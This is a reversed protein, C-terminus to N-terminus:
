TTFNSYTEFSDLYTLVIQFIGQYQQVTQVSGPKQIRQSKLVQFVDIVGETKCKNITTAAACFMASRGVTDSCHVVISTNGRRRQTKYMEEIVSLITQPKAMKRTSVWNTIQYQMVSQTSGTNTNKVELKREIYGNYIEESSLMIAYEGIVLGSPTSPWYQYCVEQDIEKEHCLMVIATVNRDDIMKWFNRATNFMPSEAIIFAKKEKYGNIFVANIYDPHEGKLPVRYNDRPLFQTSRNKDNNQSAINHTVEDPRQTVQELVTFQDIFGTRGTKTDPKSMRNFVIRANRSDVQTNGCTVSELVADNVFIYQDATQVMKMRQQRMKNIISIIDIGGEKEAQQLGMDIAMFTGTRGVGASCHVLMPGKTPKYENKIRRHFQLISTAYEPVGHDPWSTFHYQTIMLPPQDSGLLTLQMKRITYDTLVQEKTLEIRFPGYSTSGHEPWYQHCKITTDEKLNTVMVIVPPREQWILRWFDVLTKTVPGQTAIYKYDQSYGDIYCANIYDNQCDTNGPIQNLLIRNDDYVVINGFRNLPRNSPTVAITVSHENDGSNLTCYQNKFGENGKAHGNAVFEGFQGVPILNKGSKVASTGNSPMRAEEVAVTLVVQQSVTGADNNAVFRYTGKHKEEVSVLLLSGDGRLEHAYDDTVPEGNHYWNFSLKLTEKVKVKFLVQCGEETTKNSPFEEIVPPTATKFPAPPPPPGCRTELKVEEYQGVHDVSYSVAELAAPKARTNYYVVEHKGKKKKSVVVVIIVIVIIILLLLPVIIGAAIASTSSGGASSETPNSSPASTTVPTGSTHSTSAQMVTSTQILTSAQIVTSTQMVTSVMSTSSVITPTLTVGPPIPQTREGEYIIGNSTFSTSISFLYNLNPDLGGILGETTDGPFVRMGTEVQRKKRSSSSTSEYYVTYHSAGSVFHWEARVATSNLKTISFTQIVPIEITTYERNTWEGPGISTYARVGITYSTNPILGLISYYTNTTNTISYPGTSTSERYRIEYVTIIGNPITPPNWAIIIETLTRVHTQNSIVGPISEPTLQIEQRAPGTMNYNYPVISVTYNTYPILGNLNYMRNDGGTINVTYSTNSTINTYTLYYGTIPGNRGNCPVEDWSVTMSVSEVSSFIVDGVPATPATSLTTVLYNTTLNATEAGYVGILDFDCQSYPPIGTSTHPSSVSTESNSTVSSECVRRCRRSINYSIPVLATPPSWILTIGVSTILTATLDSVVPNSFTLMVSANGSPLSASGYSVVYFTYTSGQSLAALINITTYSTTSVSVPTNSSLQYYVEYGTAGSVTSWSLRVQALGTSLRTATLGTPTDSVSVNLSSTSNVATVGSINGATVRDNSVICQYNGAERLRVTVTVRTVSGPGNVIVRCLETSIGNGNVSCNVTTPPGDSVNFSLSFVPPTALRSTSLLSFQMTPDADPGDNNNYGTDTYAGVVLTQDGGVENPIICQYLGEYGSLDEGGSKALAIQGSFRKSFLAQSPTSQHGFNRHFLPVETGIPYYWVGIDAGSNASQCWLADVISSGDNNQDTDYFQSSYIMSYDPIVRNEYALYLRVGNSPLTTPEQGGVQVISLILFCCICKWLATLSSCGTLRKM